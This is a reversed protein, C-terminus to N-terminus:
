ELDASPRPMHGPAMMTCPTGSISVLASGEEALSAALARRKLDCDIRVAQSTSRLQHSRGFFFLSAARVLTPRCSNDLVFDASPTCIQIQLMAAKKTHRDTRRLPSLITQKLDFFSTARDCATRTCLHQM